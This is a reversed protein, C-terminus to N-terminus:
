KRVMARSIAHLGHVEKIESVIVSGDKTGVGTMATCSISLGLRGDPATLAEYLNGRISGDIMVEGDEKLFARRVWGCVSHTDTGIGQYIPKNVFSPLAAELVSKPYIHNTITAKDAKINLTATFERLAM